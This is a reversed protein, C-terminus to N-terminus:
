ELAWSDRRSLPLIKHKGKEIFLSIYLSNAIINIIKRIINKKKM